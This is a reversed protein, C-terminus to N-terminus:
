AVPGERQVPSLPLTSEALLVDECFAAGTTLRPMSLESPAKVITLGEGDYDVVELDAIWRNAGLGSTVLVAHPRVAAVQGVLQGSM